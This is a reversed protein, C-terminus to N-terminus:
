IAIKKFEKLQKDIIKLFFYEDIDGTPFRKLQKKLAYWKRSNSGRLGLNDRVENESMLDLLSRLGIMELKKKYKMKKNSVLFNRVNFEFNDSDFSALYLKKKLDSVSDQLRVQALSSNFVKEFTCDEVDINLNRSILRTKVMRVEMRFVEINGFVKAIEPDVEKIKDYFTIESQKCGFSVVKGGNWYDVIKRNYSAPPNIKSLNCLIINSSIGKPLIMNKGYHLINVRSKRLAEKDVFVGMFNLKEVLTDLVLEFDSDDVEGLNNGFVLKPVSFEINLIIEFGGKRISKCVSLRPMYGRQKQERETPNRVCNLYKRGGLELYPPEFLGRSCPTFQDHDYIEFESEKLCLKITDIM